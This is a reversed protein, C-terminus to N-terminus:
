VIGCREGVQLFFVHFFGIIQPLNGEYVVTLSPKLVRQTHSGAVGLSPTMSHGRVNATLFIAETLNPVGLKQFSM